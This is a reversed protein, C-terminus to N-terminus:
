RRRKTLTADAIMALWQQAVMPDVDPALMRDQWDPWLEPYPWPLKLRTECIKAYLWGLWPLKYTERMALALKINDPAEPDTSITAPLFESVGGIGSECADLKRLFARTITVTEHPKARARRTM